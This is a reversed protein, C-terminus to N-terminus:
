QGARRVILDHLTQWPEAKYTEGSTEYHDILMNLGPTYNMHLYKNMIETEIRNEDYWGVTLYDLRYQTEFNKRVMAVNDFRSKTYQNVLGTCFLKDKFDKIYNDAVTLAFYIKRDPSQSRITNLIENLDFKDLNLKVGIEKMKVKLYPLDQIMSLNLLIVDPRIEKVHQLVWIPYTDNDGNSFLIGDKEVSVLVNYNYEYLSPAYDESAYLKECSVKMKESQGLREYSSILSYYTLPADPNLAHAKELYRIEENLDKLTSNAGDGMMLNYEYSNPVSKEMAQVLELNKAKVDKYTKEKDFMLNYRNAQYYNYWANANDPHAQVEKEWLEAQEQYWEPTMFIKRLSLVPQPKDGSIGLITPLLILVGILITWNTKIQM